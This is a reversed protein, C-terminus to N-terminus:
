SSSNNIHYDFMSLQVCGTNESCYAYQWLAMVAMNEFMPNVAGGGHVRPIDYKSYRRRCAGMGLCNGCM